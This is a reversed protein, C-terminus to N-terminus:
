KMAPRFWDADQYDRTKLGGLWVPLLVNSRDTLTKSPIDYTYFAKKEDPSGLLGVGMVLTDNTQWWVGELQAPRSALQRKIDARMAESSGAPPPTSTSDPPSTPKQPVKIQAVVKGLADDYVCLNAGDSFAVRNANPSIEDLHFAVAHFLFTPKDVAQEYREARGKTLNCRSIRIDTAQDIYGNYMYPTGHMDLPYRTKKSVILLDDNDIWRFSSIVSDEPGVSCVKAQGDPGVVRLSAIHRYALHKSDPSWVADLAFGPSMQYVNLNEYGSDYVSKGGRLIQLRAWRELTKPPEPPGGPASAQKHSLVAVSRGDPSKVHALEQEVTGGFMAALLAAGEALMGEGSSPSPRAELKTYVPVDPASPVNQQPMPQAPRALNAKPVQAVLSNGQHDVSDPYDRRIEDFLAQAKDGDGITLYAQGLLYRAFAGVQVGDGYFCDGYDAIAQKFYNFQDASNPSMQGLYVFLAAPVTQTSM